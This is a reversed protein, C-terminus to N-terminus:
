KKTCCIYMLATQGDKEGKINPDAGNELLIQLCSIQGSFAANILATWKKDGEDKVNVDIGNELFKKVVGDYGKFAGIHLGTDGYRWDRYTIEAGNALVRSVKEHDGSWAAEILWPGSM